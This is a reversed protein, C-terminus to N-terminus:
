QRGQSEVWDIAARTDEPVLAFVADTAHDRYTYTRFMVVTAKSLDFLLTGFASESLILISDSVRLGRRITVAEDMEDTVYILRADESDTGIYDPFSVGVVTYEDEDIRYVISTRGVEMGISWAKADLLSGSEIRHWDGIPSLEKDEAMALFSVLVLLVVILARKM